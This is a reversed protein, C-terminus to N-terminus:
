FERQNPLPPVPKIPANSAEPNNLGKKERSQLSPQKIVKRQPISVTRKKTVVKPKTIKKAMAVVSQSTGMLLQLAALKTEADEKELQSRIVMLSKQISTIAEKSM